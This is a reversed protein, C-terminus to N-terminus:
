QGKDLSAQHRFRCDLAHDTDAANGGALHSRPRVNIRHGEVCGIIRVNKRRFRDPQRRINQDVADKAFSQPPRTIHCGLIRLVLLSNLRSPPKRMSLNGGLNIIEYIPSRINHVARCPINIILVPKCDRPMFYAFRRGNSRKQSQRHSGGLRAGSLHQPHRQLTRGRGGFSAVQSLISLWGNVCVPPQALLDDKM